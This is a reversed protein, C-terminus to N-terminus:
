ARTVAGEIEAVSAHTLDAAIEGALRARVRATWQMRLAGLTRPDAAVALTACAGAAAEADLRAALESAFRTRDLRTWDAPEVTERRAGPAPGGGAGEPDRRRERAAHLVVRLDIAEADGRNELVLHREGDAVVVWAGHPLKM